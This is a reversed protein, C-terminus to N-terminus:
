RSGRKSALLQAVVEQLGDGCVVITSNIISTGSGRPEKSKSARNSAIQKQRASRLQAFLEIVKATKEEDM